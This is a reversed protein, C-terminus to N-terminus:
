VKILIMSREYATFTSSIGTRWRIQITQLGNVTAICQTHMVMNIENTVLGGIWGFYRNSEQVITSDIYIAYNANATIVSNNGSSSFTVIYTGASPTTTMGNMLIFTASTTSTTTTSTINIYNINLLNDLLVKKNTATSTDYTIVYNTLTDPTSDAALSNIDLRIDIEDNGTDDVIVIGSTSSASNLKKFKLDVDTKQKFIGIGGIGINIASNIEGGGSSLLNNLLVKKHTMDSNDYIIVYDATGDPATETLLSNIDLNITRSSTLDGGGSLGVGSLINISSHDIHENSVFGSLNDHHISNEHQIVNSVTVRADAFTGSIIDDATISITNNLTDITKNTLTQTNNTGVIITDADPITLIRTTATTIGNLQFRIKKSNDADDQFHTTSDVFTKNSLTQVIDTGFLIM